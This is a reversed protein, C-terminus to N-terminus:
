NNANSKHIKRTEEKNNWSIIACLTLAEWIYCKICEGCKDECSHVWSLTRPSCVRFMLTNFVGNRMNQFVRHNVESNMNIKVNFWNLVDMVINHWVMFMKWCGCLNGHNSVQPVCCLLSNERVEDSSLLFSWKLEIQSRIRPLNSLM